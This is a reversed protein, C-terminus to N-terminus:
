PLARPPFTCDINKITFKVVKTFSALYFDYFELYFKNSYFQDIVYYQYKCKIM